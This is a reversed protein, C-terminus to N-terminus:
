QAKLINNITHFLKESIKNTKTNLIENATSNIVDSLAQNNATEKDMDQEIEKEDTVNEKLKSNLGRAM